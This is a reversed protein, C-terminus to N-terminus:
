CVVENTINFKSTNIATYPTIPTIITKGNLCEVYVDLCQGEHCIAKTYSSPNDGLIVNGTFGKFYFGGVFAIVMLILIAWLTKNM